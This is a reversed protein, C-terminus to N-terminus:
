QVSVVESTQQYTYGKIKLKRRLTTSMSELSNLAARLKQDSAVERYAYAGKQDDDLLEALKRLSKNIRQVDRRFDDLTNDVAKVVSLKEEAAKRDAMIQRRVANRKELEGKMVGTIVDRTVPNARKPNYVKAAEIIMTVLEPHESVPFEDPHKVVWSRFTELNDESKLMHLVEPNLGKARKEAAQRAALAAARQKEFKERELRKKKEDDAAQKRLAALKKQKAEAEAQRREAEKRVLERAEAQAKKAAEAARQAQKKATEAAKRQAEEEAILREQEAKAAADREELEADVQDSVANVIESLKGSSALAKMLSQYQGKTYGSCFLNTMELGVGNGKNLSAKANSFAQPSIAGDAREQLFPSAEYLDDVSECILLLYAVRSVISAMSDLMGAANNGKQRMNEDVMVGVMQDDDFDHIEVKVRDMGLARMAELRHHAAAQEYVIDGDEYEYQALRVPIVGFDGNHEYSAMLGEVQENDIPYIGFDRYPNPAISNIDVTKYM